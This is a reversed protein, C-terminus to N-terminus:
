STPVDTAHEALLARLSDPERQAATRLLGKLLELSPETGAKDWCRATMLRTAELFDASEMKQELHMAVYTPDDYPLKKPQSGRQQEGAGVADIVVDHRQGPLPASSEGPAPGGSPGIAEVVSSGQPVAGASSALKNDASLLETPAEMEVAGPEPEPEPEALKNDASLLSTERPAPPTDPAAELVAKEQRRAQAASEKVQKLHDLLVAADADPNDKLHRALSRGDREPLTGVSLMAQLEEPLELLSLQNTVWSRDKGLQEAARSRAGRGSQEACVDVLQQVGRAREIVDFDERDLNEKLLHNIFQERSSALDDRVVFDLADLGVHVASRFRREGNVLVHQVPGIREAQEPWLALYADRTVAVCAALQAQRLEEGFRTKDEDTGFNRRPNLPTPSVEDLHLRVLEYTPVDGQAVAKARGRASRGRPVQGFSSGTGLKDAVSM